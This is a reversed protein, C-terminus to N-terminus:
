KYVVQIRNVTFTETIIKRENPYETISIRSQLTYADIYHSTFCESLTRIFNNTKNAKPESKLDTQPTFTHNLM